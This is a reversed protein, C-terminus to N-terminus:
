KKKLLEKTAEIISKSDIGHYALLEEPKASCSMKNISLFNMKIGFSSLERAVGEGIGGEPYHDEVVLVKKGCKIILESLKKQNLPKVCYLDIICANIKKKKLEEYAKLAEHLTIGAGIIALNDKKSKKIIGFGGVSFEQNNDYLIATKPRSTRIYKIGKLRYALETLREASVADSPYFVISNPIARFMAIDELGMQSAGDEGISVGAHSGCITMDASSLAAMRIQDHARSLFAAFTSSFTKFGKVSLGLAMGIMAQEAIYSEVFKKPNAKKLKESFDSNSVEASLAIVSDDQASLKVLANGYAERTAVLDKKQYDLIIKAEAKLPLNKTNLPSNITIDPMLPFPIEKLALDLEVKNLTKGHWGEKDELFSVGKGKFTKAIIVTPRERSFKARKFAFMLEGVDHGDVILTNAGMSSFRESYAKINHGNMTEGSQGLRNVDIIACLNNLKYHTAIRIAEDVSGEAVESDGMLVYTRYQMGRIKAALAMGVGVAIGQGLSGTAVKVWKLSRPMPHGELPSQFKRLSMLDNSICGAKYLASYLIPAAHGKSLIFEDNDPNKPNNVEYSMESFFLVSMIEACSLCTTPHGSGAETTMELSDRRLLNAIDALQKKNLM